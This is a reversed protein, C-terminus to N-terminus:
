DVDAVGSMLLALRALRPPLEDCDAADREAARQRLQWGNHQAPWRYWVDDIMAVYDRGDPHAYVIVDADVV